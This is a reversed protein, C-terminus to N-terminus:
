ANSQTYGAFVLIMGALAVILTALAGGQLWLVRYLDARLVALDEKTAMHKGVHEDLRDLRATVAAMDAQTSNSLAAIDARTSNRFAALDAKTAMNADVQLMLYELNEAVRKNIPARTVMDVLAEAQPLPIGMKELKRIEAHTDFIVDSM